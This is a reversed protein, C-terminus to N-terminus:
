EKGRERDSRGKRGKEERGEKGKRKGEKGREKREEEKEMVASPIWIRLCVLCTGEEHGTVEVGCNNSEELNLYSM